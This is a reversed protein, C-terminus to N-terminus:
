GDLASAVASVAQGATEDFVHQYVDGTIRTSSHGLWRSVGLALLLETLHNPDAGDEVVM